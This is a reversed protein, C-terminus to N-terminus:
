AYRPGMTKENSPGAVGGVPGAGGQPGRYEQPPGPQGVPMGQPSMTAMPYAQMQGQQPLQYYGVQQQGWPRMHAQNPPPVIAGNTIMTQVINAALKEADNSVKSRNHHACDVCAWIFLTFHLILGFFQCVLGTLEVSERHTKQSWLTNLYADQDACNTFMSGYNGSSRSTSNRDCDRTYSVSDGDDDTTYGGRTQWVWTGNSLLRYDGNGSGYYGGSSGFSDIEGFEGWQTLESYAVLACFVTGVFGLWLILDIAVRLGPHMPRKRLIFVAICAACWVVSCSFTLLTPWLLWTGEFYHISVTSMLWGVAGIGILGVIIAITQLASKFKWYRDANNLRTNFTQPEEAAPTQATM